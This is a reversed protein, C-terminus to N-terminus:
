VITHQNTHMANRSYSHKALNRGWLVSVWMADGLHVTQFIDCFLVYLVSVNRKCQVSVPSDPFQFLHERQWKASFRACKLELPWIVIGFPGFEIKHSVDGGMARHMHFSLRAVLHAFFLCM